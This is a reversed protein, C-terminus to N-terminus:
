IAVGKPAGTTGSTYLIEALDDPDTPVQFGSADDDLLEDWDQAEVVLKLSPLEEPIHGRLTESAVIASPEAHKLIGTLEGRSLRINVPVAVAGAMQAAAYAQVFRLGEAPAVLLAVRDGQEVGRAVLGRALRAATAHWEGFTLDGANDGSIVSFAIEDPYAAAMHRLQDPVLAM